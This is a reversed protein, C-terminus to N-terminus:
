LKLLMVEDIPNLEIERLLEDIDNEIAEPPLPSERINEISENEIDDDSSEGSDMFPPLMTIIKEARRRQM